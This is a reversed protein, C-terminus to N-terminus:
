RLALGLELRFSPSEPAAFFEQRTVRAGFPDPQVAPKRSRCQPQVAHRRSGCHSAEGAPASDKPAGEETVNPVHDSSSVVDLIGRDM